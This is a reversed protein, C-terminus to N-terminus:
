LSLIPLPARKFIDFKNCILIALCKLKLLTENLTNRLPANAGGQIHNGSLWLGSLNCAILWREQLFKFNIKTGGWLLKQIFCQSSGDLEVPNDTWCADSQVYYYVHGVTHVICQILCAPSPSPQQLKYTYKCNHLAHIIHMGAYTNSSTWIYWHWVLKPLFALKLGSGIVYWSM